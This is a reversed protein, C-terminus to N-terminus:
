LDHTYIYIIMYIYVGYMMITKCDYIGLFEYLEGDDM